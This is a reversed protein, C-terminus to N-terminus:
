RPDLLWKKFFATTLKEVDKTHGAMFHDAGEIIEIQKPDGYRKSLFNFQDTPFDHDHEASVLLKPQVMEEAGIRNFARTPCAISAIAQPVNSTAGVALTVAAGFSYGALGVRGPIVNDHISLFELAEEADDAEGLGRSFEGDSQGVGRFNFKLAAIGIDCLGQAIAGVVPSHM